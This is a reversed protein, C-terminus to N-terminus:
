IAYGRLRRHDIQKKIDYGRYRRFVEKHQCKQLKETYYGYLECDIPIPAQLGFEM